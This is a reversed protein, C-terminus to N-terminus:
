VPHFPISSIQAIDSGADVTQISRRHPTELRDRTLSLAAHGLCPELILKIDTGINRMYKKMTAM